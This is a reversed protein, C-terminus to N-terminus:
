NPAKHDLLLYATTQLMGSNSYLPTVLMLDLWMAWVCRRKRFQWVLWFSWKKNNLSILFARTQHLTAWFYTPPLRCCEQPPSCRCSWGWMWEIHWSVDGKESNDLWHSKRKVSILFARFQHWETWFYTPPLRYCEQPPTCRRSWGWIWDCHGSVDENGLNDFWGSLDSKKLWIL